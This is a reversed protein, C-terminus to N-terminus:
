CVKRLWGETDEGKGSQIEMLAKRLKSANPGAEGNGAPYEKGQHIFTGVSTLVAATGSLAAEGTKAWELLEAVTFNRETIKYGLRAGVSLISVRTVGHLYSTDLPKTLIEHDNILMFNAAGTEQVDGGPCFLVQDAGHNARAREIHGLALAYNAGAKVMGFSSTTRMNEDDILVRLPKAGGKFYDGVPSVLVFLCVENPIHAAAGINAQTGILTPRIYLAGPTAPIESRSQKVLSCIMDEVESVPPLPLNLLKASQQFRAMHKDLRFIHVSGDEWRYAKLGEFCTSSYHFVHAAPHMEIPATPRTEAVSWGGDRYWRIAMQKAFVTGFPATPAQALDSDSVTKDGM